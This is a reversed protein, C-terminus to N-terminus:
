DMLRRHNFKVENTDTLAYITTTDINAHGLLVKIQELPVGKHLLDSAFYKRFKHPHAKVGAEKGIERIIREIANVQLRATPNQRKEGVVRKGRFLCLDNDNRTELYSKLVLKTKSNFYAERQKAGKGYVIMSNDAFNIDSRNLGVLESVRIGSSLLLEFIATDRLKIRKRYDSNEPMRQLVGRMKEIEDATFPLKIKKKHRIKNIGILPNSMIYGEDCFFQFTTNLVRRKNDLTRNSVTGLKQNFALYDRVDDTTIELISKQIFDFFKVDEMKYYAITRSSCGEIQKANLFVNLLQENIKHYDQAEENDDSVVLEYKKLVELVTDNLKLLAKGDIFTKTKHIINDNLTERINKQPQNYGGIVGIGTNLGAPQILSNNMM